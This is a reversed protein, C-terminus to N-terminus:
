IPISRPGAVDSHRKRHSVLLGVGSWRSAFNDHLAQCLAAQRISYAAIGEAEPPSLGDHPAQRDLWWGAQWVVFSLVRRMEEQLLLGEESWRMARARM